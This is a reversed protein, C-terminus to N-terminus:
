IIEDHWFLVVMHYFLLLLLFTVVRSLLVVLLVCCWTICLSQFSSRTKHSFRNSEGYIYINSDTKIFMKWEHSFKLDIKVRIRVHLSALWNKNHFNLQSGSQFDPSCDFVGWCQNLGVICSYSLISYYQEFFIQGFFFVLNRYFNPHVRTSKFLM